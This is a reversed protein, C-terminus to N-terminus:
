FEGFLCHSASSSKRLHLKDINRKGACLKDRQRGKGVIAAQKHFGKMIRGKLLGSDGKRKFFRVEGNGPFIDNSAHVELQGWLSV